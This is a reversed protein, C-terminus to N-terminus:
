AYINGREVFKLCYNLAEDTRLVFLQLAVLVSVASLRSSAYPRHPTQGLRFRSFMAPTKLDVLLKFASTLSM